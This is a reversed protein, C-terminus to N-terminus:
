QWATLFVIWFLETQPRAAMAINSAMQIAWNKYSKRTDSLWSLYERLAHEEFGHFVNPAPVNWGTKSFVYYLSDNIPRWLNANYEVTDSVPDSFTIISILSDTDQNRSM